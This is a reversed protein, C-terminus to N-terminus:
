VTGKEIIKLALEEMKTLATLADDPKFGNDALKKAAEHFDGDHNLYTYAGFKSYSTNSELPYANTSFVYLTDHEGGTSASIGGDTKGPRRWEAGDGTHRVLTWGHPELIQEWSISDTFEDGPKREKMQKLWPVNYMQQVKQFEKQSTHKFTTKPEWENLSKAARLMDERETPTITPINFLDGQILKYPRGTKHTTPPCGPALFYGGEGRTEILVQPINPNDKTPREALKENRGVTPCRYIVHRGNSPTQVVPFRKFTDRIAKPLLAIWTMYHLPPLPEKDPNDFDIAELGGSVEGCIIAIGKPNGLSAFMEGVKHRPLPGNQKWKWCPSKTGDAIIPCIAMKHDIYAYALTLNGWKDNWAFVSQIPETQTYLETM